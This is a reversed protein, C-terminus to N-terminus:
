RCRSSHLDEQCGVGFQPKLNGLLEVLQSSCHQAIGLLGPPKLLQGVSIVLGQCVDWRLGEWDEPGRGLVQPSHVGRQQGVGGGIAWEKWPINESANSVAPLSQM